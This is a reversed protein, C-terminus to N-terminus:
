FGYRQGLEGCPLISGKAVSFKCRMKQDVDPTAIQAINSILTQGRM